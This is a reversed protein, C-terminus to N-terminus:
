EGEWNFLVDARHKTAEIRVANPEDTNAVWDEAANQSRGFHMHRKVLRERRVSHDIDVYWIEDLLESVGAWHGHDLLLYNGETIVLQTEPFVPIANAIPEEIERRFEPAYVIENGQQNKLRRLLSVYGASDFTDEAGKRGARGLRALEVNALHYGDMPVAVADDGLLDLLAAALTSKGCGPPGVIGLIKRGGGNRLANLRDKYTEAITADKAGSM